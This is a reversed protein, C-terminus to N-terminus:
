PRIFSKKVIFNVFIGDTKEDDEDYNIIEYQEEQDNEMDSQHEQTLTRVNENFNEM